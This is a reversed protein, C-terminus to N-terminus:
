CGTLCNLLGDTPCVSSQRVQQNIVACPPLLWHKSVLSFKLMLLKVINPEGLVEKAVEGLGCAMVFNVSTGTLRM